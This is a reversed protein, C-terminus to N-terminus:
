ARKVAFARLTDGAAVAAVAHNVLEMGADVVRARVAPLRGLVGQAMARLRRGGPRAGVSGGGGVSGVQAVAAVPSAGVPAAVARPRRYILQKLPGLMAVDVNSTEIRVEDFRAARLLRALTARDFYNIHEDAVVRWRRGWLSSSLGAINPTTMFLVGNPALLRYAERLYTVPDPLHEIVEVMLAADFSREPLKAEPLGGHFLTDGMMPRLLAALSPSVETGHVQWGLERAVRVVLGGGCGIELLRPARRDGRGRPRLADLMRQIRLRLLPTLTTAEASSGMHNYHQALARQDPVHPQYVTGCQTCTSLVMPGGFLDTKYSLVETTATTASCVPCPRKPASAM